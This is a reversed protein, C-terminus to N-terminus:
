DVIDHLAFIRVTNEYSRLSIDEFTTNGMVKHVVWVVAGISCSENRGKVPKGRTFREPQTAKPLYIDKMAEPLTDVHKKSAHTSTMSCWPADEFCHYSLADTTM